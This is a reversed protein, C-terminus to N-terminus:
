PRQNIVNAPTVFLIDLDREPVFNRARMELHTFGIKRMDFGCLAIVQQPHDKEVTLKFDGIPGAWTRASKLIYEVNASTVGMPTKRMKRVNKEFPASCFRETRVKPEPADNSSGVVPVYEHEVVSEGRKRYTQTWVAEYVAKLERNAFPDGNKSASETVDRGQKDFFRTRWQPKVEASDVKVTFKFITEPKRWDIMRAVDGGIEARAFPFAVIVNQTQDTLNRFL